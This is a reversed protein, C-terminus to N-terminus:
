ATLATTADLWSFTLSWSLSPISQARYGLPVYLRLGSIYSNYTSGRSISITSTQTGSPGVSAVTQWGAAVFTTLSASTTCAATTSQPAVACSTPTTFNWMINVMTCPSTSGIVPFPGAFTTTGTDNLQWEETAAAAWTNFAAQTTSNPNPPTAPAPSTDFVVFNSLSGSFYSTSLGTKSTPAWGVHWYGTDSTYGVLLGGGTAVSTGDVYVTTTSDLSLLVDVASMTVYVFHWTGDNYTGPTTTSSGGTNQVFVLHGSPNMYLIRDDGGAANVPSNGIEFIPGGTTASTKFWIGIGYRNGLTLGPNPQAQSLVDAAYATSGDLSISGSSTMPGTSPSYGTAYRPLLPNTADSQNALDVVGCSTASVQESIQQAPVTGNDTIVDTASVSGSSPTASTPAIGGPCNISASSTAALTCNTSQYTHTYATTGTGAADSSNTVTGVYGGHTASASFGVLLFAGVFLISAARLLRGRREIM